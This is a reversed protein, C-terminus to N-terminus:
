GGWIRECPYSSFVISSQLLYHVTARKVIRVAAISGRWETEGGDGGEVKCRQKVLWVCIFYFIQYTKKKIYRKEEEETTTWNRIEEGRRREGSIMESSRGSEMLPSFHCSTRWLLLCSIYWWSSWLHHIWIGVACGANKSRPSNIIKILIGHKNCIFQLEEIEWWCKSFCGFVRIQRMTPSWISCTPVVYSCKRVVGRFICALYEKEHSNLGISPTFRPYRTFNYIIQWPRSAFSSEEVDSLESSQMCGVRGLFM